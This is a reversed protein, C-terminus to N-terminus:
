QKGNRKLLNRFYQWKSRGERELYRRELEIIGKDIYRVTAGNGILRAVERAKNKDYDAFHGNPANTDCRLWGEGPIWVGWMTPLEKTDM